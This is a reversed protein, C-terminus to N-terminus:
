LNDERWRRAKEELERREELTIGGMFQERGGEERWWHLLKKAKEDNDFIGPHRREMDEFALMVHASNRRIERMLDAVHATWQLEFQEWDELPVDGDILRREMQDLLALLSASSESAKSTKLRERYDVVAALMEARTM